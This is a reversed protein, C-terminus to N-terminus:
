RYQKKMNYIKDIRVEILDFWNHLEILGELKEHRLYEFIASRIEEIQSTNDYAVIINVVGKEPIYESAVDYTVTIRKDIM